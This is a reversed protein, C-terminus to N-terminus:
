FGRPLGLVYLVENPCATLLAYVAVACTNGLVHLAIAPWLSRSRETLWCAVLSFVYQLLLAPLARWGVLLHWSVFGLSCAVAALVAGLRARLGSYIVGRWLLEEALPGLLAFRLGFLAATPALAFMPQPLRLLADTAQLPAWSAGALLGLATGLLILPTLLGLVHLTAQAGRPRFLEPRRRALAWAGALGLGLYVLLIVLETGLSSQGFVVTSNGQGDYVWLRLVIAGARLTQGGVKVGDLLTEDVWFGIGRRQPVGTLLAAAFALLLAVVAWAFPVFPPRAPASSEPALTGEGPSESSPADAGQTM